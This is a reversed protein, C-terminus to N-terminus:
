RQMLDFNTEESAKVPPGADSLQQRHQSLLFSFMDRPKRAKFPLARACGAATEEFKKVLSEFMCIRNIKKLVLYVNFLLCLDSKFIFFYSVCGDALSSCALMLNIIPM